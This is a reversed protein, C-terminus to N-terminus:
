NGKQPPIIEGSLVHKDQMAGADPMPIKLERYLNEILFRQEKQGTEIRTLSDVTAQLGGQIQSIVTTMGEVIIKPDFGAARMMSNLMMEMGSLKPKAETM